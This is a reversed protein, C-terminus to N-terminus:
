VTSNVELAEGSSLAAKLTLGLQESAGGGFSGELVESAGEVFAEPKQRGKTAKFSLAPIASMRNAKVPVLLSGQVSVVLGGCDFEMASAGAPLLHLAIKNKASTAGLKEIGLAGELPATQVQGSVLGSSCAQGSLECGDFTLTVAGLTKAGTYEGTGTTSACAVKTGAVTELVVPTATSELTFAKQVVGPLWEYAGSGGPSTCGSNGYKGAGKAIKVCRGFEPAEPSTSTVAAKEFAAIGDPTGVGTPGDYGAGALCIAHGSCSAQAEEAPTCGSLGTETYAKTCEGNSGETIDHLSASAHLEGEYLTQAPYEVGGSGGALAFTAAILPTALSTGGITCWHGKVKGEAFFYQCNVGSDYVALGTYPDAVASVDAVARKDACGVSAWDSVSQQFPEAPFVVSCGGGGAGYGNWVSEGAWGDSETLSLRTGGVAVVHPSSAPYDAYGKESRADWDLYGDDGSAAAIVLGPDDFPSHREEEASVGLEPGGWSNSVENAGLSAATREAKELDVYSPEDAEVLVIHCSQCVARTVEIDLSIELAWGIAEEAEERQERTGKRASELEKASRPFPPNAPEGNQNVKAFCGEGATCAPLSFEKTYVALDEEAALDNYADVIAVTQGSAATTPLNYASHLDSPRLGFDGNAPSPPALPTALLARRVGIPHTHARAQASQPVLQDALCAAHRRAPTKCVARVGYDSRPLPTVISRAAAPACPALLGLALVLWGSIRRARDIV